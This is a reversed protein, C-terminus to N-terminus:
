AESAVNPALAMFRDYAMDWISAHPAIVEPEYSNAVLERAQEATKIDGLTLAQILINGIASSDPSAVIIPRQLANALRLAQDGLQRYTLSRSGDTIAVRDGGNAVARDYLEGVTFPRAAM